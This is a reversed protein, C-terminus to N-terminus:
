RFNGGAVGGGTDHAVHISRMIIISYVGGAGCGMDNAINRMDVDLSQTCGGRGVGWTM